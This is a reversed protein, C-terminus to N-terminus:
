VFRVNTIRTDGELLTSIKETAPDKGSDPQQATALVLRGILIGATLIAVGGLVTKYRPLIFEAIADSARDWMSSRSQKSRLASRLEQRAIQLMSDEPAIPGAQLLTSHFRKLDELEQQCESCQHLHQDLSTHEDTTLEDYMLLQLWKKYQAHNM